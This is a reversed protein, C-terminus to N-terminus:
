GGLKRLLRCPDVGIAKAIDVLEIVDIQRAGREYKSVWVQNQGLRKGLEEQTLKKATRAEILVARLRDYRHDKPTSPTVVM